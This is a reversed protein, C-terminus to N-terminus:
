VTAAARSEGVMVGSGSTSVYNGVLSPTHTNTTWVRTQPLIRLRKLLVMWITSNLLHSPLLWGM